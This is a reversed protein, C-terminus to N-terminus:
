SAPPVWALQVLRTGGRRTVLYGRGPPLAEPRRNGLLVGEDRSGSMMIGPSALERLRGIIPEFLARAAGGSRRTLILHLGIDRGQALFDLLGLLPNTAGAVLDYDDVLVFLEPGQWWSRNRLQDQTVDPGPLRAKMATVVDRVMPATADSSTGYALLHEPPVAGLLSRRYDVLLVRAEAPSYRETIARAVGRLFSSKGCELDGLLLCHPEADVDLFVPGLDHEAIGIPIRGRESAQPGPLDAYGLEAPLLRVEPARPGDWTARVQDVLAAIADPLTQPDPSADIRPLATLFQLGEATVGRGPANDPVNLAARRDMMSDTPDGLRLELKSGFADRVSPRVDMWRSASAAVHVGLSLGRSTIEAVDIELAEFERRLAGLGDVVLFVDGFPDDGFEGARRRQRYVAMSEVGAEAFRRERADLLGRVEAVTRRLRDADLRSAVGGVHPLGRLAPLGGGGLDLCYFQVERPTHTLALSTVLTRLLTSKGSQPGGVVVLHGLAGSLDLTLLERRQEFPRDVVCIPARVAGHLEPHAVTLGRLPDASLAPLMQDLTPPVGLPPLWVQRAPVGHGELREVLIDLVSEGTAEDDPAEADPSETAAEARPAVYATTYVVAPDVDPALPVASRESSFGLYPGSVYTARFRAMPETGAKLYGHGPARPLEYADPVGLVARSESSSFTRLGIRYSLHTDLGRLRGEELRQSALLLHVGLSRGVRGIQVFMDIFDPKASLLESFEDCIILLNPLPALPAGAARAREYDRQSDYKGADRLLEQRRVLEGSIADRMRDVLSLEHRLNTIVASTHPLRDLKAFTAGGKFDVLVLNLIESNHSAALALVLTRLLESKGSGTAGVLLGHPGMGEQASEKLDLDVPAGDPAVGVPVRLRDRNPRAGWATAPTYQYPDGIGLLEVLDLDATARQEGRSAVSLRLGALQGALGLAQEPHLGDPRGVRTSGDASVSHLAGTDDIELVLSARDLLRPPRTALDIVTVGDIGGETMLHDSGAADGGDLVVIVHPTATLVADPDFRARAALLDELIAELTTVAGALMRLRGLADTKAPHLAHPLWKAWEWASEAEPGACVAVLLDDPAHFVAAQALLARVMPQTSEGPGRVYVRSFGPLSLAVPLDRVVAYTTVFRRLAVACVPELDQIRSTRPPVIPTAVELPGLGLRVTGFDGDAPRREWLRHSAVTSWLAEPDPHRYYMARRQDDIVKLIRRRHEALHHMYTRRASVMEAKNPQGAQTVVQALLMGLMSVGFMAGIVYGLPGPRQMSFMLAMAASGAVMPLTMLLSTWARSSPQPLEPPPDLIIDGSPLQPAPRRPQRKVAVTSM